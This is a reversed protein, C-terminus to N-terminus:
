KTIITIAGLFANTSANENRLEVTGDYLTGVSLGSLIIDSKTAWGPTTGQRQVTNSQGGITVRAFAETSSSGNSEWINAHIEASTIGAIHLYKFQLIQRYTSGRVLYFLLSTTPTSSSGAVTTGTYAGYYSGYTYNGSWTFIVNSLSQGLSDWGSGNYIAATNLDTRYFFQGDVPSGPYSTGQNISGNDEMMVALRAVLDTKSGAPNTGLETQTALIAAKLKNIDSVEALDEKDTLSVWSDITGPYSSTEPSEAM